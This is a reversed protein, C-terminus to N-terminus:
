YIIIIFTYRKIENFIKFPYKVYKIIFNNIIIIGKFKILNNKDNNFIYFLIGLGKVNIYIKNYIIFHRKFDQILNLDKLLIDGM